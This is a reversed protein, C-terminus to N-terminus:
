QVYLLLVLVVSCVRILEQGFGVSGESLLRWGAFAFALADRFRLGGVGDTRAWRLGDGKECTRRMTVGHGCGDGGRVKLM